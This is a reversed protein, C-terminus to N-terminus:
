CKEKAYHVQPEPLIDLKILWNLLQVTVRADDLASHAQTQKIQFHRCAEELKPFKYGRGNARPLKCVGTLARMVCITPTREFRDELGARRLEGRMVKTDYQANFSVVVYGNDIYRTYPRLVQEIPLGNTALFENTLGHIRQAEPTMKWGDPKVYLNWTAVAPGDLEDFVIMGLNALRPQGEADAPQSFDFLGTTETDIIICKM